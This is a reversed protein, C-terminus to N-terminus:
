KPGVDEGCDRCIVKTIHGSLDQKIDFDGKHLCPGDQKEAM